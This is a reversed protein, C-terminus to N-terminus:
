SPASDTFEAEEDSFPPKYHRWGRPPSFSPNILEVSPKPCLRAHPGCDSMGTKVRVARCANLFIKKLEDYQCITSTRHQILKQQVALHATVCM